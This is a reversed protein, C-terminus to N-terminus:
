DNDGAGELLEAYGDFDFAEVRARLQGIFAAHAPLAELEALKREIGKVHGIEGLEKLEALTHAALGQLPGLAPPRQGPSTEAEIWEIALHAQLKDLMQRLDVPKGLL